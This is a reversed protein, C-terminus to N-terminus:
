VRWVSRAHCCVCTRARFKSAKILATTPPPPPTATATSLVGAGVGTHLSVSSVATVVARPYSTSGSLCMRYGSHLFLCFSLFSFSSLRIKNTAKCNLWFPATCPESPSAGVVAADVVGLMASEELFPYYSSRMASINSNAKVDKNQIRPTIQPFCPQLSMGM